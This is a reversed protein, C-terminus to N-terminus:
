EESSIETEAKIEPESKPTQKTQRLKTKIDELKGTYVRGFVFEAPKHETQVTVSYALLGEDVSTSLTGPELKQILAPKFIHLRVLSAGDPAFALYCKQKTKLKGMKRMPFCKVVLDVGPIDRSLKRLISKDPDYGPRHLIRRVLGLLFPELMVAKMYNIRRNVWRFIVLCFLFLVLNLTFALMPNFAYICAIIGAVTKNACEFMADLTPIPSILVMLEFFLRVSSIVFINIAAAIALLGHHTITFVGASYVAVETENAGAKQAAMLIVGYSIIGAYTEVRDMSEAFIKSTSVLRPVSTIVALGSFLLFVLWNDLVENSGLFTNDSPMIIATGSLCALGFFPSMAIPALPGLEEIPLKEILHQGKQQDKALDEKSYSTSDSAKAPDITIWGNVLLLACTAVLIFASKKMKKFGLSSHALQKKSKLM